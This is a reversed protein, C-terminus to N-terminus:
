LSVLTGKPLDLNGTLFQAAKDLRAGKSGSGVHRPSLLAVSLSQHMKRHGPLRYM